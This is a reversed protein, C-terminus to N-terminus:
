FLNKTATSRVVETPIVKGELSCHMLSIKKKTKDQM